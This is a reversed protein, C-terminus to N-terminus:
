PSFATKLASLLPNPPTFRGILCSFLRFLATFIQLFEFFNSFFKFFLKCFGASPTYDFTFYYTKEESLTKTESVTTSKKIFKFYIRKCLSDRFFASTTRAEAKKIRLPRLSKLTTMGAFITRLLAGCLLLIDRKSSHCVLNPKNESLTRNHKNEYDKTRVITLNMKPM